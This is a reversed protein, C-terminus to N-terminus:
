FIQLGEVDGMGPCLVACEPDRRRQGDSTATHHSLLDIWLTFYTLWRRQPECRQAFVIRHEISIHESAGAIVRCGYASALRATERGLRGYGLIGFTTSGLERIYFGRQRNWKRHVIQNELDTKIRAFLMFAMSLVYPPIVGCHVGSNSTLQVRGEVGPERYFTSKFLRDAGASPTMQWRLNPMDAATRVNDPLEWGFVCTTRELISQEVPHPAGDTPSAGPM